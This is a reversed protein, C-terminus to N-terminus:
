NVPVTGTAACDLAPIWDSAHQSQLNSYRRICSHRNRMNYPNDPSARQSRGIVRGTFDQRILHTQTSDHFRFNTSALRLLATSSCLSIHGAYVSVYIKFDKFKFQPKETCLLYQLRLQFYIKFVHNLSNMSPLTRIIKTNRFIRKPAPNPIKM